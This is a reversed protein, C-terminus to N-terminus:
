ENDVLGLDRLEATIAEDSDPMEVIIEGLGDSDQYAAAMRSMEEEDTMGSYVEQTDWNDVAKLQAYTTWDKSMM